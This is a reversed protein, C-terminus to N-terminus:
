KDQKSILCKDSYYLYNNIIFNPSTEIIYATNKVSTITCEIDKSCPQANEISTLISGDEALFIIDISTLMNKMWIRGIKNNDVKLLLGQGEKINKKFMLGKRQSLVDTVYTLEMKVYTKNAPIYCKVFRKDSMISTIDENALAINCLINLLIINKLYTKIM